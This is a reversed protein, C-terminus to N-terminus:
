PPVPTLSPSRRTAPAAIAAITPRATGNTCPLKESVSAVAPSGTGAAPSAVVSAGAAAATTAAALQVSAAAAWGRRFRHGGAALRYLEGERRDHLPDRRRHDVDVRRRAYLHARRELAVREELAEEAAPIEEARRLLALAGREAGAHEDVRGADDDGVVVDDAVGGLHLHRQGVPALHRGLDEQLVLPGIKRDQLDAVALLIERHEVEAIGVVSSTPSRTSATPSGNPTPWVTVLPM